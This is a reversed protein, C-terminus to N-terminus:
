PEWWYAHFPAEGLLQLGSGVPSGSGAGWGWWEFQEVAEFTAGAPFRRLIPAPHTSSSCRQICGLCETYVWVSWTHWIHRCQGGLGGWHLYIHWVHLRQSLYGWYGGAFPDLGGHPLYLAFPCVRLRVFPRTNLCASKVFNCNLYACIARTSAWRLKYLCISM